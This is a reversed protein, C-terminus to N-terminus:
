PKDSGALTTVLRGVLKELVLASQTLKITDGEQLDTDMGGPELGIYQEGLLGSTLISASTDTPLHYEPAITFRVVAEYTQPDIAINVVRGIRVGALTVPARVKLGGINEFNANVTYGDNNGLERINSVQMALMFLAALGLVVFLGVATELTKTPAM